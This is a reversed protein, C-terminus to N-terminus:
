AQKISVIAVLNLIINSAQFAGHISKLYLDALLGVFSPQEFVVIVSELSVVLSSYPFYGLKLPIITIDLLFAVLDLLLINREFCLVFVFVGLESRSDVLKLRMGVIM